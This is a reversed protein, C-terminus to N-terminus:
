KTIGKINLQKAIVKLDSLVKGDLLEKNIDGIGSM